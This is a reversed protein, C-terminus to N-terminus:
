SLWIFVDKRDPYIGIRGLGLYGQPAAADGEWDALRQNTDAIALDRM